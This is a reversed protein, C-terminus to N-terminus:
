HPMFGENPDAGAALQEKATKVNDSEIAECFLHYDVDAERKRKGGHLSTCTIFLSAAIFAKHRATTM